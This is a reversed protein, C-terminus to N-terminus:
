RLASAHCALRGSCLSLAALRAIAFPGDLYARSGSDMAGMAFDAFATATSSTNLQSTFEGNFDFTGRDPFGSFGNFYHRLAMVGFKITHPGRPARLRPTQRSPPKRATKRIRHTTASRLCARSPSHPCAARNCTSTSRGAHGARHRHQLAMGLPTIQAHWRVLGLHSESVMTSSGCRPIDSPRARTSCRSPPEAPTRPSIRASPFPATQRRLFLARLCLIARTTTTISSFITPNASTRISAFMSNIRRRPKRRM